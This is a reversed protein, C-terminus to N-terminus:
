INYYDQLLLSIMNQITTNSTNQQLQILKQKLDESLIKSHYDTSILLLLITLTNIIINITSKNEKIQLFYIISNIHDQNELLYYQHRPELCINALGGLAFEQLTTDQDKLAELYIDIVNVEWLWNYNIPNYSFNALNALVQQKAELNDTTTYENILQQFYQLKNLSNQGHRKEIFAKSQFM